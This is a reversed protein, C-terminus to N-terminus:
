VDGCGAMLVFNTIVGGAADSADLTVNGTAPDYFLDAIDDGPTPAAVAQELLDGAESGFNGFM